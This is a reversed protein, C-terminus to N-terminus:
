EDLYREEGSGFENWKYKEDLVRVLRGNLPFYKTGCKTCEIIEGWNKDIVDTLTGDCGPVQCIPKDVIFIEGM